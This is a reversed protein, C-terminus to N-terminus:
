RDRKTSACVFQSVNAGAYKKVNIGDVKTLEMGTRLGLSELSRDYIEVVIVKGEM